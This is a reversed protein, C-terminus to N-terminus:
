AHAYKGYRFIARWMSLFNEPKVNPSITNSSSMIHGGGPSWTDICEKTEREAEVPPLLGLTRGCDVNGNLCVRSGFLHKVKRRDMPGPEIERVADVESQIFYEEGIPMLNGDSAIMSYAGKGHIARSERKMFPLIHTRYREPSIMPGKRYALDGGIGIVDCGADIGAKGLSIAKRAQSREFEFVLKPELHFARLFTTLWDPHTLFCNWVPLMVAVDLESKLKRILPSLRELVETSSQDLESRSRHSGDVLARLDELDHKVRRGTDIDVEISLLNGDLSRLMTKGDYTWENESIMRPGSDDPSPLTHVPVLDMKLKKTLDYIDRQMGAFAEASRGQSQLRIIRLRGGMGTLAPRRLVQDATPWSVNEGGWPVRDPEEHELERIVREWPTLM